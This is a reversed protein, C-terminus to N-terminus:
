VFVPYGLHDGVLRGITEPNWPLRGPGV